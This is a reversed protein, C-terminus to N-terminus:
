VEEKKIVWSFVTDKYHNWHNLTCEWRKGMPFGQTDMEADVPSAYINEGIHWFDRFESTGIKEIIM